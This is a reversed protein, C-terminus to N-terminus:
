LVVLKKNGNQNFDILMPGLHKHSKSSKQYWVFRTSCVCNNRVRTWGTYAGGTRQFARVKDLVLFQNRQALLLDHVASPYVFVLPHQKM